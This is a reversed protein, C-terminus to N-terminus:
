WRASNLSAAASGAPYRKFGNAHGQWHGAPRIGGAARPPATPALLMWPNFPKQGVEVSL